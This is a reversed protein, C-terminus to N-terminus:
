IPRRCLCDPVRLRSNIEDCVAPVQHQYCGAGLFSLAERTSKNKNLLSDVHRILKAESLLPTPLNLRGKFRLHDPIDAYFKDISEVGIERLMEAKVDPASNPIYPYVVPKRDPM